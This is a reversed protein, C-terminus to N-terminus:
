LSIMVGAFVSAPPRTNYTTPVTSNEAGGPGDAYHEDFINTFDVYWRTSRGNAGPVTYFVTADVVDYGDYTGTNNNNVYMEGVTRWRLTGGWGSPPAYSATLNAVHDPVRPIEKGELAPNNPRKKIESDFFGFGASLTLNPVAQPFYRIEGEIGSRDTEGANELQPPDGVTLLEDTSNLMFYVLDFYLSQTPTGSIGFEYQTFKVPDLDATESISRQEISPLAFGEAYSARLELNDTVASRVGLKPLFKSNSTDYDTRNDLPNDTMGKGTQDISDYRFGITPRFLRHVDLDMQGFVSTTKTVFDGDRHLREPIGQVFGRDQANTRYMTEDTEENYYEAGLVWNSAVSGFSNVGNLSFGFAEVDRDHSLERQCSTTGTTLTACTAPDTTVAVDTEFRSLFMDTKYAWTLLKLHDSFSHNFDIRQSDYTKEAMDRQTQHVPSQKRSEDWGDEFQEGSINGPVYSRAGHGRLSLAIESREGLMYSARLALNMKTFRSNDRWGEHEYGQVAGNLQLPGILPADVQTGFAVQGDYTGWSGGSLHIDTYEGGKRTQFAMVGGRAFNGYLPSVPGKYVTLTEVELPVIINTDAYGDSHGEAENLTIGDLSFGLDGGHGGSTMGRITVFDGVSGGQISRVEVGPAEEFIQLPNEWRRSEIQDRGIQNITFSRDADRMGEGKVTIKELDVEIAQVGAGFGFLAAAIVCKRLQHNIM